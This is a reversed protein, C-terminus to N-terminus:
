IMSLSRGIRTEIENAREMPVAWAAGLTMLKLFKDMFIMYNASLDACLLFGRPGGFWVAQCRGAFRAQFNYLFYGSRKITRDKDVGVPLVRLVKGAAALQSELVEDQEQEILRTGGQLGFEILEIAYEILSRGLGLHDGRLGEALGAALEPGLDELAEILDELL